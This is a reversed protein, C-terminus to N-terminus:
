KDAGVCHVRVGMVAEQYTGTKRRSLSNCRMTLEKLEPSGKVEDVFTPFQGAEVAVHMMMIFDSGMRTMRSHTVNGGADAVVRSLHAVWGPKDHGSATIVVHQKDRDLEVPSTFLEGISEEMMTLSAGTVGGVMDEVHTIDGGRMASLICTWVLSVCAAFPIRAYMPMFAFNIITFPVWLKWLALLDEKMNTRYEALCRSIDPKDRMVLEKTCYFVPFYM